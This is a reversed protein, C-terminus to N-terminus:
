TWKLTMQFETMEVVKFWDDEPLLWFYSSSRGVLINKLGLSTKNEHSFLFFFFLLFHYQSPLHLFFFDPYPSRALPRCRPCVSLARLSWLLTFSRRGAALFPIRHIHWQNSFSLVFFLCFFWLFLFVVPFVLACFDERM